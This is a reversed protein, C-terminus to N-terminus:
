RTSVFTSMATPYVVIGKRSYRVYDKRRFENMYQTVQERSTGIYQALLEHSLPILQISGDDLKDGLRDAFHMLSRALLQAINDSSFKEIRGRYDTCRRAVLQILPIGLQPRRLILEHVETSTWSM